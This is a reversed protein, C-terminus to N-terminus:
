LSLSVVQSSVEGPGGWILFINVITILMLRVGVKIKM